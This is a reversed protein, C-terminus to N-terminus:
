LVDMSWRVDLCLSQKFNGSMSTSLLCFSNKGKNEKKLLSNLGPFQSVSKNESQKEKWEWEEQALFWISFSSSIASLAEDLGVEVIMTDSALM